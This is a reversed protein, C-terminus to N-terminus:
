LISEDLRKRQEATLNGLGRKRRSEVYAELMERDSYTKGAFGPAKKLENFTEKLAVKADNGTKTGDVVEKLKGGAGEERNIVNIDFKESIKLPTDPGSGLNSPKFGGNQNLNLLAQRPDIAKLGQLPTMMGGKPSPVIPAALPLKLAFKGLAEGTSKIGETFHSMVGKNSLAAFVGTWLVGLSLLMWFLQWYDSVSMFIPIPRAFETISAPVPVNSGANILVFGIALPVGVLAPLFAAQIFLKGVKEVPNYEGMKDGVVYGLAVFPMFAMTLWLVPIRIFFAAVMAAVPFLLAVHITLVVAYKVVLTLLSALSPGAPGAVPQPNVLYLLWRLRGYNVILGNFLISQNSAGGASFGGDFPVLQVCLLPKLYCEWGNNGTSLPATATEFFAIDKVYKCPETSNGAASPIKCDANFMTPVQYVTYTLISAADYIVRPIFWSFNVLVVAMVFKPAMEKIKATNATITALIGGGVLVFAFLLNVVDRCFIWITRLMEVMAPEFIFDPNTVINLMWFLVWMLFHMCTIAIGMFVIMANITANTAPDLTAQAHALPVAWTGVLVLSSAILTSCRRGYGGLIEHKYAPM